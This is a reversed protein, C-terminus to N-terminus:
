TSPWSDGAKTLSRVNSESLDLLSQILLSPDATMRLGTHRQRLRDTIPETFSNDSDQSISIVTGSRLYSRAPAIFVSLQLEGDRFLFICMPYVKVAVRDGKKLERIVKM